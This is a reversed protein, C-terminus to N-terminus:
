SKTKKRQKKEKKKKGKKIKDIEITTWIDFFNLNKNVEIAQDTLESSTSALEESVSANNQTFGDLEIVSLSIEQSAANQEKNASSIETSLKANEQINQIMKGLLEETQRAIQRSDLSLETIETAADKSREALKRVEAAVVSFGRGNEGARAAEIAANLALMNTQKAIDGVISIRDSIKEIASVAKNLAIQGAEADQAAEISINKSFEASESNQVISSVMEEMSASIEETTAAQKSAADSLTNSAENLTKSIETMSNSKKQIEGMVQILKDAMKKTNKLVNGAEDEGRNKFSFNMNGKSMIEVISDLKKLSLLIDASVLIQLIVTILFIALVITALTLLMRRSTKFVQESQYLDYESLSNYSKINLELLNSKITQIKEYNDIFQTTYSKIKENDNKAALPLGYFPTDKLMKMAFTANEISEDLLKVLSEKKTIDKEMETFLNLIQYNLTNNAAASKIIQRELTSIKNAKQPDSLADSVSNIYNTSQAVSNEVIGKVNESIERNAMFLTNTEDILEIMKDKEYGFDKLLSVDFGNLEGIIEDYTANESLYDITKNNIEYADNSSKILEQRTTLVDGMINSLFFTTILFLIVIILFFISPIQLKYRIKLNKLLNM